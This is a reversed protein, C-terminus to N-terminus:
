GASRASVTVSKGGVDDVRASVSSLRSVPYSTLLDLTPNDALLDGQDRGAAVTTAESM